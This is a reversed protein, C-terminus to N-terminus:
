PYQSNHHLHDTEIKDSFFYVFIYLAYNDSSKRFITNDFYLQCVTKRCFSKKKYFLM